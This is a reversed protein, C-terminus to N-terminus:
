HPKQQGPTEHSAIDFELLSTLLTARQYLDQAELLAQKEPPQFPAIMCIGNVLSEDDAAEVADWDCALERKKLYQDLASILQKRDSLFQGNTAKLDTEDFGTYDVMMQRFPTTVPLEEEVKFRCLGSLAILYRGDDLEAYESIKGVCGVDYCLPKQGPERPQIMGIMGNKAMAADVMALYRPEFINLPLQSNPLLLAGALPFVPIATELLRDPNNNSATLTM